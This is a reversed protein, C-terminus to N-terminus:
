LIRFFFFCIDGLLFYYRLSSPKKVDGKIGPNRIRMKKRPDPDPCIDEHPDPDPDQPHGPTFPFFHNKKLKKKVNWPRCILFRWNESWNQQDWCIHSKVAVIILHGWINYNNIQDEQKYLTAWFRKFAIQVAQSRDGALLEVAVVVAVIEEGHGWVCWDVRVNSLYPLM